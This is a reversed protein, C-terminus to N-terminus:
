EGQTVPSFQKPPDEKNKSTLVMREGGARSTLLNAVSYIFIETNNLALHGSFRANWNSAIPIGFSM